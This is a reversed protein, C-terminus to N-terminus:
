AKQQEAFDILLRAGFGSMGKVKYGATAKAAMVGAIDIHAWHECKTFQRLFIAATCSGAERGGVNKIDATASKMQDKYEPILPMRWLREGSIKSASHLKGWLESSTTWTGAAQDGLSIIMAGTLTALDIVQKPNYTDAHILADALILRGEADTNDVEISMGNSAVVVDGPKTAKGSPMNETMPTIVVLNIPLNLEAVGLGASLVAASGGMDARMDAMGASPKISIGGSDFTVGKGVYVTPAEESFSRGTGQYELVVMRPPEESGAAVSLFSGMSKDQIWQEEYVTVKLKPNAIRKAEEEIRKAYLRPSMFNAPTEKFERALNQCRGVITGRKWENADACGIPNLGLPKTKSEKFRDFSYNALTAGEAASRADVSCDVDVDTIGLGSGKLANVASGVVTRYGETVYDFDYEPEAPLTKKEGTFALAVAAYDKGGNPGYVIKVDQKKAEGFVPLLAALAGGLKESDVKAAAPSLAPKGDAGMTVVAVFGSKPASDSSMNRRIQVQQNIISHWRHCIVNQQRTIHSAPSFRSTTTAAPAVFVSRSFNTTPKFRRQTTIVCRNSLSSLNRIRWSVGAM